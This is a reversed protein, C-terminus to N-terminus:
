AVDLPLPLRPFRPPLRACLWLLPPSPLKVAAEPERLGARQEGQQAPAGELPPSALQGPGQPPVRPVGHAPVQPPSVLARLAEPPPLERAQPERQLVRQALAVQSPQGQPVQGQLVQAQPVWPPVGQQAKLERPERHEADQAVVAKAGYEHEPGREQVVAPRVGQRLVVGVIADAAVRFAAGLPEGQRAPLHAAGAAVEEDWAWPFDRALGQCKV